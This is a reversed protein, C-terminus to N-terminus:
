EDATHLGGATHPKWPSDGSVYIPLAAEPAVGGGAALMALALRGIVAATAACGEVFPTGAGASDWWPPRDGVGMWGPLGQLDPAQEGQHLADEITPELGEATCAYAALYHADRRSRIVTVVGPASKVRDSLRAAEALARSSPVPVVRVDAAFALAQAVSAAIRVGTFSGPGAGFALADLERPRVGARKLLADIQRLLVQNHLREVKQTNESCTGDALLAVSCLAGSTEVALLKMPKTM